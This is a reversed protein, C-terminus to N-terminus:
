RPATRAELRNMTLEEGQTWPQLSADVTLLGQRHMGTTRASHDAPWSFVQLIPALSRIAPYRLRQSMGHPPHAVFGVRKGKQAFETSGSPLCSKAAAQCLDPLACM